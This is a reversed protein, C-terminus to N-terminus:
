KVEQDKIADVPKSSNSSKRLSWSAAHWNGAFSYGPHYLTLAGIAVIIMPGELVMFATQNNAVAGNFGGQLEVVRYISRIFILITALWLAYQFFRFRRSNRLAGFLPNRADEPM